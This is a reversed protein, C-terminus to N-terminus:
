AAIERISLGAGASLAVFGPFSTAVNLTDDIRIPGGARLAAMAFAMAIRHDGHSAVSGASFVPGTHQGRGEIIMGDPTAEAHVGLARLGDAM